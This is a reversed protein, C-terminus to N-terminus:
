RHKIISIRGRQPKEVTQVVSNLSGKARQEECERKAEDGM